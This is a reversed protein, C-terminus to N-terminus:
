ETAVVEILNTDDSKLYANALNNAKNMLLEAHEEVNKAQFKVNEDDVLYYWAGRNNIIGLGKMVEVFGSYPNIGSDYPVDIVM